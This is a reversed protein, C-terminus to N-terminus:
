EYAVRDNECGNAYIIAYGNSFKITDGDQINRLWGDIVKKAEPKMM